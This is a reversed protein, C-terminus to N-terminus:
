WCRLEGAAIACAPAWDASLATVGDLAPEFGVGGTDDGWCHVGAADAACTRYQGASVRTPAALAPVTSERDYNRGWCHVGAADIACTHWAGASVATPGSMAPVSTQGINNWGWCHVGTDDLACSHYGGASVAVPNSLAPVTSQGRSNDGWCHVGSDDLACTHAAGASLAVPNDMAPPTASGTGWCVVGSDDIACAHANGVDVAVPDSLPPVATRDGDSSGWCVVAGGDLACVVGNQVSVATPATLAPVIYAFLGGYASLRHGAGDDYSPLLWGQPNGPTPSSATVTMTCRARGALADGCDGGTGPYAGGAFAFPADPAPVALSTAPLKGVNMLTVTAGAAAGAPASGLSHNQPTLELLAVPTYAPAALMNPDPGCPVTAAEHYTYGDATKVLQLQQSVTGCGSVYASRAISISTDGLDGVDAGNVLIDTGDLQTDISDFTYTTSGCSIVRTGIDLHGPGHAVFFSEGSCAGSNVSGLAWDGTFVFPVISVAVTARAPPSTGDSVEVTFSDPGAVLSDTQYTFAGTAADLAAITGATPPDVIAFSLDDGDPDSAILAASASGGVEVEISLDAAVPPRPGPAGDSARGGGDAGGGADGRADDDGSDDGGGCGAAAILACLFVSRELRM